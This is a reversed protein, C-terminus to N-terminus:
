PKPAAGAFRPLECREGGHGHAAPQLGAQRPLVARPHRSQPGFVPFARRASAERAGLRPRVPAHGNKALSHVGEPEPFDGGVCTPLECGRVAEARLLPQQSFQDVGSSHLASTGHRLLVAAGTACGLAGDHLSRLDAKDDRSSRRKCGSRQLFVGLVGMSRTEEQKRGLGAGIELNASTKFTESCEFNANIYLCRPQVQEPDVMWSSGEFPECFVGPVATALPVLLVRQTLVAYLLASVISLAKNGIGSGASVGAVVFKCGDIHKRKLFFKNVDGMRQVCTRHLTKYEQLVSSWKPNIEMFDHAIRRSSNYLAYIEHRSACPHEKHWLARKPPTFFLKTRSRGSSAKRAATALKELLEAVNRPADVNKTPMPNDLITLGVQHQNRQRLLSVLLPSLVFFSLVVVFITTTMRPSKPLVRLKSTAMNVRHQTGGTNNMRHM